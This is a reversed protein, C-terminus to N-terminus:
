SDKVIENSCIQCAVCYICIRDNKPISPRAQKVLKLIAQEDMYDLNHFKIHRMAKGSGELMKKPDELDVGRFFGLDIWARTVMINCVDNTGSYCPFGWKMKEDLKPAAKKIISRLREANTRLEPDQSKLYDDM